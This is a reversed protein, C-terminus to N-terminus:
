NVNDCSLKQYQKPKRLLRLFLSITETDKIPLFKAFDEYSLYNINM